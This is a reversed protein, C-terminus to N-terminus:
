HTFHSKLPFEKKKKQNNMPQSIKWLAAKIDGLEGILDQNSYQNTNSKFKTM